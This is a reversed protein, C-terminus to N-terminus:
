KSSVVRFVMRFTQKGSAPKYLLYLNNSDGEYSTAANLGEIFNKALKDDGYSGATTVTAKFSNNKANANWKGEFTSTAIVTGKINGNIVDGDVTGDFVINYTGNKNLEKISAKEQEENEWLYAQDLINMEPIWNTLVSNAASAIDLDGQSCLEVSGREDGLAGGTVVVIKIRGNTKKLVEDAMKKAGKYIPSAEGDVIAMRFVIQEEKKASSTKGCGTASFVLLISVLMLAIVQKIKGARQRAMIEEEM